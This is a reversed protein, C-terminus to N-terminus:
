TADDPEQDLVAPIPPSGEANPEPLQPLDVPSSVLPGALWWSRLPRSAGPIVDRQDGFVESHDAAVLSLHLLDEQVEQGIGQLERGFPAPDVDAGASSTASTDTASVPVPM